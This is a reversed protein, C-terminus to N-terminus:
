LSSAFQHAEAASLSGGFAEIPPEVNEFVTNQPEVIPVAIVRVGFVIATDKQFNSNAPADWREAVAQTFAVHTTPHGGKNNVTLSRPNQHSSPSPEPGPLYRQAGSASEGSFAVARVLVSPSSDTSSATTRPYAALESHPGTPITPGAPKLGLSFTLGAAFLVFALVSILIIRHRHRPRQRGRKTPREASTVASTPQEVQSTRGSLSM